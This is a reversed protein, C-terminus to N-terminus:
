FITLFIPVKKAEPPTYVVEEWGRLHVNVIYVPVSRFVGVKNSDVLGSMTTKHVRLVDKSSFATKRNAIEDVLDLSKFYNQVELKEKKDVELKKGESIIKVQHESLTNGEISTSFHAMKIMAARRLFAERVPLIKARSVVARIEAIKALKNLISSTIQYRPKYM